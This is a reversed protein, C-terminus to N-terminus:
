TYQIANLKKQLYIPNHKKKKFRLRYYPLVHVCVDTYGNKSLKNFNYRLYEDVTSIDPSFYIINDSSFASFSIVYKHNVSLMPSAYEGKNRTIATIYTM